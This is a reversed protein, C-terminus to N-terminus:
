KRCPLGNRRVHVRDAGLEHQKEERHKKSAKKSFKGRARGNEDKLRYDSHRYIKSIIFPGECLLLINSMTIKITESISQTKVLVKFNLKSTWRCNSLKGRINSESAKEM